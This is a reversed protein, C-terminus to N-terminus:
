KQQVLGTLVYNLEMEIHACYAKDTNLCTSFIIFGLRRTQSRVVGFRLLSMPSFQIMFMPSFIVSLARSITAFVQNLLLHREAWNSYLMNINSYKLLPETFQVSCFLIVIKARYKTGLPQPTLPLLQFPFQPWQQLYFLLIKWNCFCSILIKNSSKWHYYFCAVKFLKSKMKFLTENICEFCHM